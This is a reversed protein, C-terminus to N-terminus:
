RLYQVYAEEYISTRDLEMARKIREQQLQKIIETRREEYPVNYDPEKHLLKYARVIKGETRVVTSDPEMTTLFAKDDALAHLQITIPTGWAVDYPKNAILDAVASESLDFTAIQIKLYGPVVQPHSTHWERAQEETVELAARASGIVRNSLYWNGLLDYIEPLTLGFPKFLAQLDTETFNKNGTAERMFRLIEEDSVTSGLKKAHQARLEEEVLENISHQMGDFSHIEADLTTVAVTRVPGDVIAAVRVVSVDGPRDGVDEFTEEVAKFKLRELSNITQLPEGAHEEVQPAALHDDALMCVPLSLSLLLAITCFKKVMM